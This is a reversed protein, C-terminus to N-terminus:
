PTRLLSQKIKEIMAPMQEADAKKTFNKEIKLKKAYAVIHAGQLRTVDGVPEQTLVVELGADQAGKAAAYIRNGTISQHLGSDLIVKKIKKEKAKKGLIFGTLYAAPINGTNYTWGKKLLEQSHSAVLIHDGKVNYEVIQCNTHKLSKRIVLRLVQSGLLLRRKRYNTKGERKRRFAIYKQNNM